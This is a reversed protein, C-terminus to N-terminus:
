GGLQTMFKEPTQDFGDSVGDTAVRETSLRVTVTSGDSESDDGQFLGQRADRQTRIWAEGDVSRGEGIDATVHVADGVAAEASTMGDFCTAPGLRRRATSSENPIQVRVSPREYGAM